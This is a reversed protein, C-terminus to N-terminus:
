PRCHRNWSPCRRSRAFERIRHSGKISTSARLPPVDAQFAAPSRPVHNIYTGANSVIWDSNVSGSHTTFPDPAFFVSIPTVGCYAVEFPESRWLYIHRKLCLVGTGRFPSVLAPSAANTSFQSRLSPLLDTKISVPILSITESSAMARLLIPASMPIFAAATMRRCRTDAQRSIATVVPFTLHWSHFIPCVGRVAICVGPFPFFLM